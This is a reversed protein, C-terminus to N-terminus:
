VTRTGPGVINDRGDGSPTCRAHGEQVCRVSAAVIQPSLKRIVPMLQIFYLGICLSLIVAVQVVLSM